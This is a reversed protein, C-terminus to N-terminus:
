EGAVILDFRRNQEALSIPGPAEITGWGTYGIEDLAKRVEPWNVSGERLSPWSGGHGDSTLKYDKVHCKIVLKGLTRIWQEPPILYKVQNGIDFYAQIWKSDCSQVLHKFLEPRVWFNNWVNEVGVMVGAAEAVPILKRLNERSMDTARNQAEIYPKFKSNDGKVVRSIHGTKEDFQIDFEWANPTAINSGLKCPVLLVASAGYGQAARLAIEAKSLSNAIERPNESNFDLWGLLVSHVVLGADEVRKRAEKAADPTVQWDLSEIGEFGAAKIDALPPKNAIPNCMAAKHFPHKFMKAHARGAAALTLGAATAAGVFQRRTLQCNM